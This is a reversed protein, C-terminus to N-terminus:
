NGRATSDLLAEVRDNRLAQAGPPPDSSLSTFGDGNNMWAGQEFTILYQGAAGPDDILSLLLVYEEGPELLKTLEPVFVKSSGTQRIQITSGVLDRKSSQQVQMDTITFPVGHQSQVAQGDAVGVTTVDSAEVLEELSDAGDVLSASYTIVEAPAATSGPRDVGVCAGLGIVSVCVAGSLAVRTDRGRISHM